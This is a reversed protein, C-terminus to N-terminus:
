DGHFRLRDTMSRVPPNERKVNKRNVQDTIVQAQMKIDHKIQSLSARVEADTLRVPNVRM